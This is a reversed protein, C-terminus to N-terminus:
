TVKDHDAIRIDESYPPLTHKLSYDLRIGITGLKDKTQQQTYNKGWVVCLLNEFPEAPPSKLPVISIKVTCIPIDEKKAKKAAIASDSDQSPETQLIM